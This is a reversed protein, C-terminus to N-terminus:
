FKGSKAGLDWFPSTLGARHFIEQAEAITWKRWTPEGHTGYWARALRAVQEVPVAEGHPLGYRESWVHIDEPSRFALVMSCHQHVNQWAQAPPIAFHVRLDKANEPEGNSVSIVIPEAEGGVRTHIRVRGGVVAAVGFACWVCPAWWAGREGEIWHITPTSSFPHVIWPECVHPHLVVGHIGSLLRLLREIETVPLDMRSALEPNSPFSSNEVIGRVLRYHVANVHADEPM